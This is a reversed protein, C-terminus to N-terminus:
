TSGGPMSSPPERPVMVKEGMDAIKGDKVVVSGKFVGHTVTMVTANQIVITEAGLPALALLAALLIKKM